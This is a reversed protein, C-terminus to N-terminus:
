FNFIDTGETKVLMKNRKPWVISHRQFHYNFHVVLRERFLHFNSRTGRPALEL